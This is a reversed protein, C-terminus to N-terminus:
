KIGTSGFGGAGRESASLKDVEQLSVNQVVSFVLQAIRMGKEIRFDKNSHNILAVKIEGRYDSDITGPSNLVTVGHKVALGSRPRVQAEMNSEMEMSLGTSVLAFERQKLLIEEAAYVDFGAAYVSGKSPVVAEDTLKKKKVQKLIEM